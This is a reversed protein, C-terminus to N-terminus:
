WIPGGPCASDPAPPGLDGLEYLIHDEFASFCGLQRGVHLAEHALM